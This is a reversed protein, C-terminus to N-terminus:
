QREVLWIQKVFKEFNFRVLPKTLGDAVMEITHIYALRIRQKEYLDRVHHRTIDIPKSHEHLRPHKILTLTGQNNGRTEVTRGNGAVYQSYGM